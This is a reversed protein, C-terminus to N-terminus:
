KGSLLSNLKGAEAVRLLRIVTELKQRREESLYPRVSNLLLIRNKIEEKSGFVPDPRSVSNGSGGASSMAKILTSLMDSNGSQGSNGGLSSVAKALNAMMEGSDGQGSNGGLSSVAKALNAMMEGNDGQGSNGGLSSVAKAINAMMDNNNGQGTGGPSKGGGSSFLSGLMSLVGPNEALKGILPMLEAFKTGDM